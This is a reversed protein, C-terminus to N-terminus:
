ARPRKHPYGFPDEAEDEPVFLEWHLGFSRLGSTLNCLHLEHSESIFVCKM